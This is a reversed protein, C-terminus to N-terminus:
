AAEPLEWEGPGVRRCCQQVVQRVKERWFGNPTPRRPEIAVYLDTLSARGGLRTLTDIVLARGVSQRRGGNILVLRAPASLNSVAACEEYLAFGVITRIRAKTFQAFVLPLRSRYFLNRPILEAALSWQEAWRNVRRATQFTYAPLLLGCRGDDPLLTLARSLFEDVVDARFPPNGIIATPTWPINITRFDGILVERGSGDAAEAALVPDIEVGVCPVHEPIAKLFAGRGCSPELVLDSSTLDTFHREVLLAAAWEPTMWQCLDSM